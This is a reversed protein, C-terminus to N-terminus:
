IKAGPTITREGGAQSLKTEVKLAYYNGDKYEYDEDAISVKYGADCYPVLWGTFNGSYGTYSKIKAAEEAIKTLSPIDSIGYRKITESDGGKRGATVRIIKGDKGKGEVNVEFPRDEENRYELESKEINYQFSYAATGFIEKYQPHVHLVNDKLYINAKSEEQIGKLVDYGTTNHIVYKDYKFSYDCSLTYGGIQKCIYNLIDTVDPKKFVKNAIPKRFKFIGDECMLKLSGDDTTISELYGSFELKYDSDDQANYAAKITVVDGRKIKDEVEIAKNFCAGPLVIEATDSLQEVSKTITASDLMLLKYNGIQIKWNIDFM